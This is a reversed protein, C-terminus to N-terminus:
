RAAITVRRSMDSVWVGGPKEITVAFAAAANVPIEPDNIEVIVEGSDTADFVGGSIRQSMGREADVIWLQYQSESPNNSPLGKFRMYGHQEADSWVVDGTVGQIEPAQGELDWDAWELKVCDGNAILMRAREDALPQTPTNIPSSRTPLLLALALVAAAAWGTTALLRLSRTPPKAAVHAEAIQLFTPEDRRIPITDPDLMLALDIAAAALEIEELEDHITPDAACAAHLTADSTIDIDATIRDVMLNMLDPSAARTM